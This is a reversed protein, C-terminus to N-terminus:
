HFEPGQPTAPQNCCVKKAESLKGFEKLFYFIQQFSIANYNMMMPNQM